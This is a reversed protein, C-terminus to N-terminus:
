IYDQKEDLGAIATFNLIKAISRGGSLFRWLFNELAKKHEISNFIYWFAELNLLFFM